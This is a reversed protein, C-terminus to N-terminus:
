WILFSLSEIGLHLNVLGLLVSFLGLLTDELSLLRGESGEPFLFLCFCWGETCFTYMHDLM